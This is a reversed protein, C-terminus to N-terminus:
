FDGAFDIAGEGLVTRMVQHAERLRAMPRTGRWEVGYQQLMAINGIGFVVEARGDNLEDLTAALQAVYTPERMYIPAVCPGVSIQLADVRGRDNVGNV